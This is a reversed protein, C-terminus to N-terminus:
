GALIEPIGSTVLGEGSGFETVNGGYLNVLTHLLKTPNDAETRFHQNGNVAGGARGFLLIPYEDVSHTFGFSVDSTGYVLSNELLNGDGDPTNQMMEMFVRCQDFWYMMASNMIPQNGEEVHSIDDHIDVNIDLVEMNYHAAPRGHQFMFVQTLDCAMAYTILEAMAQNQEPTVRGDLDELAEPYNAADAPTLSGCDFGGSELTAIRAELQHIGDLHQDLRRADEVGLRQRLAQADELVVDLVRRRSEFSRDPMTPTGVGQGFLRAFLASADYEPMVPTSPGSSSAYNVTHGQGNATARSVGVQLSRFPSEGGILDAIVHDITAAM